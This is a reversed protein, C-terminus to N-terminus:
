GQMVNVIFTTMTWPIGVLPNLTLTPTNGSCIAVAMTEGISRSLALLFSAIVGSLASPVVIKPAPNASSQAQVWHMVRKM